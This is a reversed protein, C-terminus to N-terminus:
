HRHQDRFDLCAVSEQKFSPECTAGSSQVIIKLSHGKVSWQICKIATQRSRVCTTSSGPRASPIGLTRQNQITQQQVDCETNGITCLMPCSGRPLCYRSFTPSERFDDPFWELTRWTDRPGPIPLYMLNMHIRLLFFRKSRLGTLARKRLLGWCGMGGLIRTSPDGSGFGRFGVGWVRFGLVMM